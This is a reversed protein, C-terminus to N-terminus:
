KLKTNLIKQIKNYIKEVKIPSKKYILDIKNNIKNVIKEDKVTM